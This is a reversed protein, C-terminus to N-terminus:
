KAAVQGIAFPALRANVDLRSAMMRNNVLDWSPFFDTGNERKWRKLDAIRQYCTNMDAHQGCGLMHYIEHEIIESPPNLVQGISAVTAVAYGHTLSESNVAGLIEPGVLSWLFDGFNRGVLALVRDCPAELPKQRLDALIGEMNFAPRSWQTVNVVKVDIAYLKAEDIWANEVLARGADESIGHDVYLCVSLTEQSGFDFNERVPAHHQGMTTCASLLLGLSALTIRYLHSM